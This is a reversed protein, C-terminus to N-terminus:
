DDDEICSADSYGPFDEPMLRREVTCAWGDVDKLNFLVEVNPDSMM